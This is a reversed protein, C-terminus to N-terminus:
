NWILNSCLVSTHQLVSPPFELSFRMTDLYKHVERRLFHMMYSCLVLWLMLPRSADGVDM